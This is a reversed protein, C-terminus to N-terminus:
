TEALGDRVAWAAVETRSSMGLKSLINSVHVAATRPSIYLREALQSNSLGEALLRAVERERPTLADPGSPTPGLGLRRQVAVLEDVRWGHWRALLPAAAEAHTRAEDLRGEAILGRAAGVHATGRHGAMVEPALGLSGAALAFLEAADAPRGEAEALQADLLRRWPDSNPLRHGVYNGVREVLPRLEAPDLGASLGARLLDHAQAADAVGVTDIAELLKPLLARAEALDAQRCALHFKLGYAGPATRETVPRAYEAFGAAGEVDGAELALGARFVALYRRETWPARATSYARWGEDLHAIAADLDGEVTALQALAVPEDVRALVDYGAAEAQAHMRDILARVEGIESWQRAHWILNNLARAALVHEGRQEAEDAAAELLARGEEMDDVTMMLASGKEVMAALRVDALDHAEALARAKDAWELTSPVKDRLMYSQAVAAMARARQEDDPLRDVADILDMTFSAMGALEGSERSIRMRAGLANAEESVDDRRRALALWRDGYHAADDLLGTLYCAKTALSLLEIDDECESLGIEALHRAQYTSGLALSERAGKRAEEVMDEYRGAGRAHRALALHDKSGTARMADLAAQHLRRQERGLLGGEIAERALEHHFSFVDPESEVLLGSDVAARLRSILEDESTGTVGALLDFSVRRGLVAATSVIARVDPDVDDVQKRVLESVTWPLPMDELDAATAGVASAVLEELFFPNGGTRSHLAEVVRFSPVTGYVATLFAGVDAPSLRSLQIHAVSHRRELRPLMEAAPHRRSLGDPRYTGVVLLRGGGPEALKEFVTVSELDAWHLDEFVVLGTAHETLKRVLEVGARTREEAPREDDSIAEVLEAHGGTPVRGLSDLFLEMPRSESGPDAQGALVVTGAPVQTVLEQVLRTKGIGAEGAVLAVAPESRAGVLRALHDLEAARGVMVPSLGSRGVLM